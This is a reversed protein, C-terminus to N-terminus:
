LIIVDLSLRVCYITVAHRGQKQSHTPLTKQDFRILQKWRYNNEEPPLLIRSGSGIDEIRYATNGSNGDFAHVPPMQTEKM